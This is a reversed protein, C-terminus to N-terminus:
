DYPDDEYEFTGIYNLSSREPTRLRNPAFVAIAADASVNAPTLSIWQHGFSAGKLLTHLDAAELRHYCEICMPEYHELATETM